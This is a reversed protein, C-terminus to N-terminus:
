YSLKFCSTQKCKKFIDDWNIDAEEGVNRDLVSTLYNAVQSPGFHLNYSEDNIVPYAKSVKMDDECFTNHIWTNRYRKLDTPNAWDIFYEDEDWASDPRQQYKENEQTVAPVPFGAKDEYLMMEGITSPIPEFMDAGRNSAM